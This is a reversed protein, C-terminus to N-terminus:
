GITPMMVVVIVYKKAFQFVLVLGKSHFFLDFVLLVFFSPFVWNFLNNAVSLQILQSWWVCL